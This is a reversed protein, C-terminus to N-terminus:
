KESKHPHRTLTVAMNGAFAKAAPSPADPASGPFLETAVRVTTKMPKIVARMATSLEQETVDPDLARIAKLCFGFAKSTAVRGIAAYTFNRGLQEVWFSRIRAVWVRLDTREPRGGKHKVDQLDAVSIQIRNGLMELSRRFSTEEPYDIPGWGAGFGILGPPHMGEQWLPHWLRDRALEPLAELASLFRRRVIEVRNIADRVELQQETRSPLNRSGVYWSAAERLAVCLQDVHEPSISHDCAIVTVFEETYPGRYTSEAQSRRAFKGEGRPVSKVSKRRAAQKRSNRKGGM